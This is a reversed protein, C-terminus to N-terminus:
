PAGFRVRDPWEPFPRPTVSRTRTEIEVNPETEFSRKSSLTAPTSRLSGGTPGTPDSREV